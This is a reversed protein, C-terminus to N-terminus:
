AASASTRLSSTGSILRRGHAGSASSAYATAEAAEAADPADAPGSSSSSKAQLALPCWRYRRRPTSGASIAAAHGRAAASAPQKTFPVCAASARGTTRREGQRAAPAGRQALNAQGLGVRGWVELGM